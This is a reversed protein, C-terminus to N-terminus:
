TQCAEPTPGDARWGYRRLLGILRAFTGWNNRRFLIDMARLNTPADLEAASLTFDKEYTQQVATAYDERPVLDDVTAEEMGLPAGITMVPAQDGFVSELRRAADRGQNDSNLLILMKRDASGVSALIISGLPAILATGGAPLIAIGRLLADDDKLTLLCSHLARLLWFDTM